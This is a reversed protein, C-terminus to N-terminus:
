SNKRMFAKPTLGTNQKFVRYFSAESNFGSELALSLISAKNQTDLLKVKVDQIRYDNILERFSKDFHANIAQSLTVPAVNLREAVQRLNLTPQLYMKEQELAQRFSQALAESQARAPKDAEDPQKTQEIQDLDPAKQQFAMLGLYYTFGAIYIFYLKWHWTTHVLIDTFRSLLMNSVLWLWLIISLVLISRLWSLTPYASDATSNKVRIQFATFKHYGLYLYTLISLVIAWDEIEKFAKYYFQNAAQDQLDIAPYGFTIGFMLLAYTQAMLFPIFHVLIRPEWRFGKETMARLYLYFLPATTLEFANPVYRFTTTASLGSFDLLVKFFLLCFSLIALALFGNSLRKEKSFYLIPIAMLGQTIGIMLLVDFFSFSM